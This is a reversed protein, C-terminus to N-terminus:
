TLLSDSMAQVLGIAVTTSEICFCPTGSKKRWNQTGIASDHMEDEPNRKNGVQATDQGLAVSCDTTLQFQETAGKTNKSDISGKIM